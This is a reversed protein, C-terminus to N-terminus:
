TEPRTFICKPTIVFSPKPPHPLIRYSKSRVFNHGTLEEGNYERKDMEM